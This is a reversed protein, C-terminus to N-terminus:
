DTVIFYFYSLQSWRNRFKLVKLLYYLIIEIQIQGALSSSYKMNLETYNIDIVALPM